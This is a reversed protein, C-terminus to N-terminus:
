GTDGRVGAWRAEAVVPELRKMLNRKAKHEMNVKGLLGLFRSAKGQRRMLAGIKRLMEAAEDYAMNNAKGIVADLRSRYITIADEPRETECAQAVRRWLEASCGGARAQEL